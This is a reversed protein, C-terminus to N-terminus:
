ESLGRWGQLLTVTGKGVADDAQSVLFLFRRGDPTADYTQEIWEASLVNPLEFVAVPTDHRFAGETEVPVVMLQESGLYFLERGDARWVPLAGGGRSVQWKGGPGPYATVYIEYEGSEDSAYALWRGDPSFTVSHEEYETELYVEVDGTEFSYLVIDAGTEPRLATLVVVKGDPSWDSPQLTPSYEVISLHEETGQGSAPKQFLNSPAFRQGAILRSSQFLVRAGDPSWIPSSDNGPDFTFRTATDRELDHVWIDGPDGSSTVVHTGQHSIQLGNYSAVDGVTGLENGERDLWQMQTLARREPVGRAFMLTGEDSVSFLAGGWLSDVSQTVGEVLAVPDGEFSLSAVDFARATLIGDDVYLLSGGTYVARSRATQLLRPEAGDLSAIYLGSQDVESPNEPNLEPYTSVAYFLFHNGDPLLHPWRHSLELREADLETVAETSGGTESVRFLPQSWDPGYLITGDDGWCGGRPASGAAALVTAVGGDISIRRLKRKGFYGISQSDPSWFPQYADETGALPRAQEQGLERVWLM